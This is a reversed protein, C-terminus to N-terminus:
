DLTPGRTQGRTQGLARDLENRLMQMQDHGLAHGRLAGLYLGLSSAAGILAALLATPPHDLTWQSLALCLGVLVLTACVSHAFVFGTWVAPEPRFTCRLSTGTDTPTLTIQLCPSWFHRETAPVHLEAYPARVWGTSTANAHALQGAIAAALETESRADVVEFRPLVSRLM